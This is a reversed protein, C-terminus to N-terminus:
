QNLQFIKKGPFCFCLPYKGSGLEGPMWPIDMWLGGPLRDPFEDMHRDVPDNVNNLFSNEFGISPLCFANGM